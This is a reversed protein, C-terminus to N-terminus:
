PELPLSVSQSGYLHNDNPKSLWMHYDSGIALHNFGSGFTVSQWSSIGNYMAWANGTKDLVFAWPNGNYLPGAIDIAGGNPVAPLAAWSGTALGTPTWKAVGGAYLALLSGDAGATIKSALGAPFRVWTNPSVGINLQYVNPNTTGSLKYISGIRGVAVGSAGNGPLTTWQDTTVTYTYTNGINDLGVLTGDGSPVVQVTNASPSTRAIMKNGGQFNISTTATDTCTCIGNIDQFSLGCGNPDIGSIDSTTDPNDGEFGTIISGNFQGWSLSAGLILLFASCTFHKM